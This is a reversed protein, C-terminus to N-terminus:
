ESKEDQDAIRVRGKTRESRNQRARDITDLAILGGLLAEEPIDDYFHELEQKLEIVEPRGDEGLKMTLSQLSKGVRETGVQLGELKAAERVAAIAVSLFSPDGPSQEITTSEKKQQGSGKCAPCTKLDDARGVQKRGNCNECVVIEIRVKEIDKKSRDFATNAKSIIADLQAIRANRRDDIDLTRERWAKRIKIMLNSADDSSIGHRIMVDHVSVVGNVLMKEVDSRLRLDDDSPLRHRPHPRHDGDKQDSM